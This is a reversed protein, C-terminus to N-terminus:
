VGGAGGRYGPELGEPVRKLWAEGDETEERFPGAGEEKVSM